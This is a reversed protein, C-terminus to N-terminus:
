LSHDLLRTITRNHKAGPPVGKPGTPVMTGGQAPSRRAYVVSLQVSQFSLLGLSSKVGQTKTTKQQTAFGNRILRQPAHQTEINQLALGSSCWLLTVLSRVVTCMLHLWGQATCPLLLMVISSGTWCIVFMNIKISCRPPVYTMLSSYTKINRRLTVWKRVVAKLFFFFHLSCRVVEVYDALLYERKPM